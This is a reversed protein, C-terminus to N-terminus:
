RASGKIRIKDEYMLADAKACVQDLTENESFMALGFACTYPTKSIESRLTAILQELTKKDHKLCLIEFEDGGTRYLRCDSLLNNRIITAVTLLATDGSAHGQNDNLKKLDNLDISIVAKLHGEHKLADDYMCRRNFAQTLADRKSTQAHLFLYYFTVSIAFTSNIFGDFSFAVELYLSLVACFLMSFIIVSESLHRERLHRITIIFLITLYIICSIYASFGLPGRVFQNDKSYSFAIDTFLASFSILCNLIAPIYLLRHNSDNSRTVIRIIHLIAIPRLTYGMASVLIRLTGPEQFSATWTEISDVLVLLLVCMISSSFLRTIRKSFLTNSLLFIMMSLVILITAYNIHILHHLM